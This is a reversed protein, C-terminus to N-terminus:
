ILGVRLIRCFDSAFEGGEEILADFETTKGIVDFESVVYGVVMERMADAKGEHDRGPILEESYV